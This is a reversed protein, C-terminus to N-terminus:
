TRTSPVVAARRIHKGHLTSKEIELFSTDSMPKSVDFLLFDDLYVNAAAALAQPTWDAKGDRMDWNTLSEMLRQRFLPRIEEPLRLRLRSIGYTACTTRGQWLRITSVCTPRNRVASGISVRLNMDSSVEPSRYRVPRLLSASSRARTPISCANLTSNSSSRVARQRAGASQSVEEANCGAVRSLVSRLAPRCLRSVDGDPTSAGKEDNVVFSLEQGGPLTCTGHQMPKSGDAGRELRVSSSM